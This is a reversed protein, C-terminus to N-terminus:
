RRAHNAEEEVRATKDGDFTIPSFKPPRYGCAPCPTPDHDPDQAPADFDIPEFVLAAGEAHGCGPCPCAAAIAAELRALRGPVGTNM